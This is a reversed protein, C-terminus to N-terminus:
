MNESLYLSIKSQVISAVDEATKRGNLYDVAEESIISVIKTDEYFNISSHEVLKRLEAIEEDTLYGLDMGCDSIRGSNDTIINDGDENLYYHHQKAEALMLEFANKSLPIFGEIQQQYSETLFYRIFEWAADKSKCKSSMAIQLSPQIYSIGTDGAPFGNFVTAENHFKQKSLLYDEIGYVSVPCLLPESDNLDAGYTNEFESPLSNVFELMSIFSACTFNCSNNKWDVLELASCIFLDESDERSLSGFVKCPSVNNKECLEKYNSLTLVCGQLKAKSAACTEINFMPIVSYLIEDKEGIAIVNPLYDNKDLDPDNELYKDLPEFLGKHTYSEFPIESDIVMIDPGKGSIINLNMKEIYDSHDETDSYDTYRIPDIRYKDNNDNFYEIAERLEDSLYPTALTITEKDDPTATNNKKGCANCFVTIMVLLVAVLKKKYNM